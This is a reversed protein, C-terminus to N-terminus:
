LKKCLFFIMVFYLMATSTSAAILEETTTEVEGEGGAAELGDEPSEAGDELLAAVGVMVEDVEEKRDGTEVM